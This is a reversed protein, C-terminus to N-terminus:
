NCNAAVDRVEIQSDVINDMIMNGRITVEVYDSGINTIVSVQPTIINTSDLRGGLGVELAIFDLDTQKFCYLGVLTTFEFYTLKTEGKRNAIFEFAETLTRDSAPVVNIKM